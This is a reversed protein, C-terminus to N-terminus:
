LHHVPTEVTTCHTLFWSCPRPDSHFCLTQEGAQHLPYARTNSCSHHLNCSWSLNLRWDLFKSIIHTHSNLFFGHVFSSICKWYVCQKRYLMTHFVYICVINATYKLCGKYVKKKKQDKTRKLAASATYPPEWALPRIPATAVPRCWLWLLVPDLGCRHGVGYSM